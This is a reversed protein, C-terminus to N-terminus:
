VTNLLQITNISPFLDEGRPLHGKKFFANRIVSAAVKLLHIMAPSIAATNGSPKNKLGFFGL